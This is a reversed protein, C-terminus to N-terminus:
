TAFTATDSFVMTNLLGIRRALPAAALVSLASLLNVGFFVWALEGTDLGWRVHFWYAILGQVVFGGGFADMAFLAGLGFAIRRSRRVGLWGRPTGPEVTPAEAAPSLLAFLAGQVLAAAVYAWLLARGGSEVGLGLADPLGAVLAGLAGFLSSVLNYAAFLITRHRDAGAQPLIAQEVSLFPGVERGSPSITGIVAAAVLVLPSEALAFGAGGIAMLLASAVLARRRGLRDAWGALVATMLAGGVLAATFITGITAVPLGRAALYTALVVSLFGFALNRVGAAAFLVWGDRSMEAAWRM